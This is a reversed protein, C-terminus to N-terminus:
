TGRVLRAGTGDEGARRAAEETRERRIALYGDLLGAAQEESGPM